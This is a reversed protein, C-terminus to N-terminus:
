CGLEDVGAHGKGRGLRWCIRYNEPFLLGHGTNVKKFIKGSGSNWFGPGIIVGPNVIVVPVGEQSARWVEM